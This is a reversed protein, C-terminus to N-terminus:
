KVVPTGVKAASLIRSVLTNWDVRQNFGMVDIRPLGWGKVLYYATNTAPAAGSMRCVGNSLVCGWGIKEYSFHEFAQMIQHSIANVTSSGGINSINEIAKQSIVQRGTADEPTGLYADFAIPQWNIMRLAKVYGSLQGSIYGFSFYQTLTELDLKNINIQASVIPVAGLPDDIGLHHIVIDGGFLKVLLAGGVSLQRGKLAVQPIVGSLQGGLKPLNLVKSLADMSIPQVKLSFEVQRQEADRGHQLSFEVIDIGGDLIQIHGQRFLKARDANLLFFLPKKIDFPIQHYHAHEWQLWTANPLEQWAVERNQWYIKGNLKELAFRQGHDRVSLGFFDADVIQDQPKGSVTLSFEGGTDLEGYQMSNLWNHLYHRYIGQLGTRPLYLSFSQVLSTAGWDVALAADLSVVDPHRYRLQTIHLKKQAVEIESKWSVRVPQGQHLYYFPAVYFEGGVLRVEGNVGWAQDRRSLQLALRADMQQGVQDGSSNSYMLQHFIASIQGRELTQGGSFQAKLDAKGQLQTEQPLSALLGTVKDLVLGKTEIEAKWSGPQARYVLRTKGEALTLNQINAVWEGAIQLYTLSFEGQLPYRWNARLKGLECRIEQERWYLTACEIHLNKIPSALATHTFFDAQLTASLPEDGKGLFVSFHAQRAQWGTASLEAFHFELSQASYAAMPLLWGFLLLCLLLNKRM